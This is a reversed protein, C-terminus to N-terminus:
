CDWGFQFGGREMFAAFARVFQETFGRNAQRFQDLTMGDRILRSSHIKPLQFRGADIATLCRRLAGAWELPDDADV